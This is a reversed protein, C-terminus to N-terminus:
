LKKPCSQQSFGRLKVKGRAYIDFESGRNLRKVLNKEFTLPHYHGMTCQWNYVDQFYHCLRTKRHSPLFEYVSVQECLNMMVAVGLMGSSPPNPQIDMPSNEQIVDWLDWQFSPSLIYFPQQPRLRRYERYRQFFDYDSKRYWAYLDRSYPAPHRMILAGTSYLPDTLFAASMLVQTNIIRITTRNGVDVSYGDTPAANLRLVADHSDIEVGLSSNRISGSSMVVACTKLPGLKEVLAEAPLVTEWEDGSFPGDGNRITGLPVRTKLECLLDEQGLTANRRTLNRPVRFRNAAWQEKLSQLVEKSVSASFENWVSWRDGGDAAPPAPPVTFSEEKPVDTAGGCGLWTWLPSPTLVVLHYAYLFLCM